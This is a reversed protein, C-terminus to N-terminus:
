VKFSSFRWALNNNNSTRSTECKLVCFDSLNNNPHTKCLATLKVFTKKQM